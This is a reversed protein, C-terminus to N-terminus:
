LPESTSWNGSSTAVVAIRCGLSARVISTVDSRDSAAAGTFYEIGSSV